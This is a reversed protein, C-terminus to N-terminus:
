RQLIISLMTKGWGYLREIRKQCEPSPPTVSVSTIGHIKEKIIIPLESEIWDKEDYSGVQVQFWCKRINKLKAFDYNKLQTTTALFVNLETIMECDFFVGDLVEFKKVNLKLSQLSNSIAKLLPSFANRLSEIKRPEVVQIPPVPWNKPLCIKLSSVHDITISKMGNKQRFTLEEIVGSSNNEDFLDSFEQFIEPLDCSISYVIKALSPCYENNAIKLYHKAISHVILPKFNHKQECKLELIKLVPWRTWIWEPNKTRKYLESSSIDNLCIHSCINPDCRILEFWLKCTLTSHFVSKKDLYSFIIGLVEKPLDLVHVTTDNMPSKELNLKLKKNPPKQMNIGQRPNFETETRNRTKMQFLTHNM